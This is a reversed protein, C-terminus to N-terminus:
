EEKSRNFRENFMEFVLGLRVHRAETMTMGCMGAMTLFKAM